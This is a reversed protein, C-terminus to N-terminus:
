IGGQAPPTGRQPLLPRLPPDVPRPPHWAAHWAAVLLGGEWCRTGRVLFHRRRQRWTGTRGQEASASRGVTGGSAAGPVSLATPGPSSHDEASRHGARRRAVLQRPDEASEGVPGGDAACCLPALPVVPVSDVIQEVIRRPVREQPRVDALRDPRSGVLEPVSADDLFFHQTSPEQSTSGSSPRTSRRTGVGRGPGDETRKLLPAYVRGPGRRDIAARAVLCRATTAKKAASCCEMVCGCTVCLSVHARKPYVAQQQQQQKRRPGEFLTNIDVFESCSITCSGELM